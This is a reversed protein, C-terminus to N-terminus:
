FSGGYFQLISCVTLSMRYNYGIACSGQIPVASFSVIGPTFIVQYRSNLWDRFEYVASPQRYKTHLALFNETSAILGELQLVLDKQKVGMVQRIAGGDLTPFVSGRVPLELPQYVAPDVDFIVIGSGTDADRLSLSGLALAAM